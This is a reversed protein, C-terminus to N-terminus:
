DESLVVMDGVKVVEISGRKDEDFTMYASGITYARTAEMVSVAEEAGYVSGNYGRRTVAAGIGVLSGHPLSPRRVWYSIRISPRATRQPNQTRLRDEGM